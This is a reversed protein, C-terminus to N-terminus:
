YYLSYPNYCGSYYYLSSYEGYPTPFLPSTILIHWGNQILDQIGPHNIGIRTVKSGDRIGIYFPSSYVKGNSYAMREKKKWIRSIYNDTSEERPANTYVNTGIILPGFSAEIASSRWRDFKDGWIDNEMRFTSNPSFFSITGTRQPNPVEDPGIANGYYTQGYSLGWGKYSGTGYWGAHNTGGGVGFGFDWDGIQQSFYSRVFWGSMFGWGASMGFTQGDQNHFVNFSLGFGFMDLGISANDGIPIQWCNSVGAIFGSAQQSANGWPDDVGNLVNELGTSLFHMGRVLLGFFEGSPDTFM